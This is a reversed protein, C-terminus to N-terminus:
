VAPRSKTEPAPRCQTKPIQFSIQTGKGEESWIEFHGGLIGVREEMIALGLGKQTVPRAGTKELDFGKGDDEIRFSIHDENERVVVSVNAAQAYKEINTFAEQFIRYVVRQAERSFLNDINMTDVTVEIGNRKAHDNVLGQIAASLGLHELVSPTLNRILRHVEEMIQDIYAITKECERSQEAQDPKLNKKVLNERLKLTVLAGGLVDHLEKSIRQREEEQSTLLRSSLRHLQEASRRLSEEGKKREEMLRQWHKAQEEARLKVRLNHMLYAFGVVFSFLVAGLLFLSQKLGRKVFASASKYPSSYVLIWSLDQFNLTAFSLLKRPAGKAQCDITGSGKELMEDVCPLSDDPRIPTATQRRLNLGAMEPYESNFLIQGDRDIIWLNATHIMDDKLENIIFSRLDVSFCLVGRFRGNWSTPKESSMHEYIPIALFIKFGRSSIGGSGRPRNRVRPAGNAENRFDSSIFIKGRNEPNKAWFFFPSRGEYSGVEAKNTSYVSVGKDDYVSIERIFDEEMRGSFDQIETKISEIDETLNSTVLPIVELVRQYGWLLKKIQDSLHDAHLFQHEQFYSLFLKENSRYQYSVAGVIGSLLLLALVTILFNSRM